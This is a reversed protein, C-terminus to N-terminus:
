LMTFFIHKVKKENIDQCKWATKKPVPWFCIAGANKQDTKEATWWGIGSFKQHDGMWTNVLDQGKPKEIM